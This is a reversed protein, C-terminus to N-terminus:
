NGTVAAAAVVSDLFQVSKQYVDGAVAPIENDLEHLAGDYAQTTFHPANTALTQLTAQRDVYTDEEGSLFVLGQVSRDVKWSRSQQALALLNMAFQPARAPSAPMIPDVHPNQSTEFKNRTLTGETITQRFLLMKDHRKASEGVWFNPHIGPALLLVADARKEFAMRYAALGGTSWGIVMKPSHSCDEGNQNKVQLYRNWILEGQEPIQKWQEQALYRQKMQNTARPPLQVQVRSDNMHGESGGQGMYDFTVVRYGAAGLHSFYPGHNRMSDALGQLYLVCGKLKTTELFYGARLNLGLGPLPVMESFETRPLSRQASEATPVRLPHSSCSLLPYVFLLLIFRNM